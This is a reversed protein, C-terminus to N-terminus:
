GPGILLGANIRLVEQIAYIGFIVVLPAFDLGGMNPLVRRIPRYLPETARSLGYWLQHIMPQHRNVVDLLSYVSM